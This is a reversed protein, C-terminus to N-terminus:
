SHHPRNHRIVQAVLVLLLTAISVGNIVGALTQLAPNGDLGGVVRILVGINLIALPAYFVGSYPIKVRMVAPFIIPAHGIVMSFIFGIAVSHIGADHLDLHTMNGFVLLVGGILLWFYGSLLCIAVFRTVGQKFVTKRAIDYALMWLALLAYSIGLATTGIGQVSAQITSVIILLGIMVFMPTAHKKPPLFRTLELREGAVTLVLFGLGAYSSAMFNGTILWILNGIPWLLAGALLTITYIAPQKTAAFGTALVLILGALMFGVTPILVPADLLLLAGSLGSLVPAFYPWALRSAVARELGIVTGFFGSIMLVSHFGATTLFIHPVDLGFRALGAFVAAVLCTIALILLPAREIAPSKM